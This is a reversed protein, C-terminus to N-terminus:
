SGMTVVEGDMTAVEGDMTVSTDSVTFNTSKDIIIKGIEQFEDNQQAISLYDGPTWTGAFTGVTGPTGDVSLQMESDDGSYTLEIIYKTNAVAVLPVTVTNTGDYAEIQNNTADYYLFGVDADDVSIINLNGTVDAANYKPTWEVTITATADTGDTGNFALELNDGVTSADGIPFTYGDGVATSSNNLPVSLTGTTDNEAPPLGYSSQTINITDIYVKSWSSSNEDRFGFNVFGGGTRGLVTKSYYQRTETLTLASQSGTASNTHQFGYNTLTGGSEVRAYFSLTYETTDNTTAISRSLRGNMATAQFEDVDDTDVSAKSWYPDSIDNSKGNLVTYAGGTLLNGSGTDIAAEDEGIEDGSYTVRGSELNEVTLAQTSVRDTLGPFDLYLYYKSLDLGGGPTSISSNGISLVGLNLDSNGITFGFFLGSLLLVSILKYFRKM